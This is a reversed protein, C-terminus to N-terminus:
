YLNYIVHSYFNKENKLNRFKFEFSNSLVTFSVIGNKSIAEFGVFPKLHGFPIWNLCTPNLESM